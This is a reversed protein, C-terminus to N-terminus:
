SNAPLHFERRTSGTCHFVDGTRQGAERVEQPLKGETFRLEQLAARVPAFGRVARDEPLAILLRASDDGRGASEYDSPASKAHLSNSLLVPAYTMIAKYPIGRGEAVAAAVVALEALAQWLTAAHQALTEQGQVDRCVFPSTFVKLM